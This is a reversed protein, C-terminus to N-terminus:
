CAWTNGFSAPAEPGPAPDPANNDREVGSVRLAQRVAAKATEDNCITASAWSSDEFQRNM